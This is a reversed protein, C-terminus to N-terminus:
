RKIIARSKGTQVRMLTQGNGETELNKALLQVNNSQIEDLSEDEHRRSEHSGIATTKDNSEEEAKWYIFWDNGHLMHVSLPASAMRLGVKSESRYLSKGTGGDIVAVITSDYEGYEGMQYIVMIDPM